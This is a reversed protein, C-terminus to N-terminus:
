KRLQTLETHHLTSLDGLQAGNFHNDNMRLSAYVHLGLQHGRDILAQQPDEGRELMRRINETHTYTAASEYHRQHIDGLLELKQSSWRVAHEGVCWFLAGVQTDILPAYVKDLFDDMSQPVASYGHPAGDWNYIIGYNTPGPM